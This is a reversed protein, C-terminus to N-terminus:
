IDLIYKSWVHEAIEHFNVQQLFALAYSYTFTNEGSSPYILDECYEKLIYALDFIDQAEDCLDTFDNGDIMELNIRWTAYNTWGQYKQTEM